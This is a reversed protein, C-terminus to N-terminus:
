AEAAPLAQPVKAPIKIGIAIFTIGMALQAVSVMTGIPAAKELVRGCVFQGVAMNVESDASLATLRGRTEHKAIFTERNVSISGDAILDEVSYIASNKVAYYIQAGWPLPIVVTILLVIGLFICLQKTVPM